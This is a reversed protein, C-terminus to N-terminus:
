LKSPSIQPLLGVSGLYEKLEAKNMIPGCSQYDEVDFDLEFHNVAHYPKIHVYKGCKYSRGYELQTILCEHIKEGPRIGMPKIPIGGHAESFIELLDTIKMSPIMPIVIEGSNAHNLTYIILDVSDDLTMMFRTMREDTIFFEADPRMAIERLKPIISGRSNLVNGYRVVVYSRDEDYKSREIIFKESLAKSLGYTNIPSCAKDTSIFCVRKVSSGEVADVVNSTGLGNTALCQDVQYECRDVHKLACAIIVITPRFFRVAKSVSKADRVDGLIFEADPFKRQMTWQKCEDRSFIGITNGGNLRRALANGLSGTGGIILVREDVLDM